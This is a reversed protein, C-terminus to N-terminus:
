SRRVTTPDDPGPFGPPPGYELNDYYDESLDPSGLYYMNFHHFSLRWVGDSQAYREYYIALTRASNGDHRKILETVQLRGSATDGTVELAPNSCWFMVKHSPSTSLEFFDGIADRGELTQGAIKWVADETFCELFAARDKRWVSDAYRAYLQRIGSEALLFAIGQETPASM